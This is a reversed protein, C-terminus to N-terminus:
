SASKNLFTDAHTMKWLEFLDKRDVIFTGKEPFSENFEQQTLKEIPKSLPIFGAAMGDAFYIRAESKKCGIVINPKNKGQFVELSVDCRKPKEFNSLDSFPMPRIEHKTEHRFMCSSEVV